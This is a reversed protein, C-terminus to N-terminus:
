LLARRELEDALLEATDWQMQQSPYYENHTETRSSGGKIGAGYDVEVLKGTFRSRLAFHFNRDSRCVVLPGNKNDLYSLNERSIFQPFDDPYGLISGEAMNFPADPDKTSFWLHVIPVKIKAVLEAFHKEWNARCQTIYIETKEPEEEKIRGWAQFDFVKDGHIRDFLVGAQKTSEFRENPESRASMVQLIVFKGKNAYDILKENKLYFAPTAGGVGINWADVGFRQALLKPYPTDSYVGVTQAAGLCSFFDSRTDVDVAPGRLSVHPMAPHQYFSYEVLEHDRASYDLVEPIKNKIGPAAGVARATPFLNSFSFLAGVASVKKLLRRRKM